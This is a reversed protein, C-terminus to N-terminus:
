ISDPRLGGAQRDPRADPVLGNAGPAELRRKHDAIELQIIKWRKYLELGTGGAVMVAVGAFGMVAAWDIQALWGLFGAGGVALHAEPSSRAWSDHLAHIPNLSLLNKV